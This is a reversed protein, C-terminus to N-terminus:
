PAPQARKIRLVLADVVEYAGRLDAAGTVRVLENAAEHAEVVAPDTAPLPDGKTAAIWALWFRGAARIVAEDDPM